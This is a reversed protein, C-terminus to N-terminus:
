TVCAQEHNTSTGQERGHTADKAPRFSDTQSVKSLSFLDPEYDVGPSFNDAM